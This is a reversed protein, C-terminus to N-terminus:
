KSILIISGYTGTNKGSVTGSYFFDASNTSQIYYGGSLTDYLKSYLTQQDGYSTLIGSSSLNYLKGNTGLVLYKESQADYALGKVLIIPNLITSIGTNTNYEKIGNDTLYLIKNTYNSTYIPNKSKVLINGQYTLNHSSSIDEAKLSNSIFIVIILIVLIVGLIIFFKKM